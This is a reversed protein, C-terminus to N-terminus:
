ASEGGREFALTVCQEGDTDDITLEGLCAYKDMDPLEAAGDLMMRISLQQGCVVRVM